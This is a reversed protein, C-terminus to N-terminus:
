ENNKQDDFGNNPSFFTRVVDPGVNFLADLSSLHSVFQKGCQPYTPHSWDQYIVRIGQEAFLNLEGDMYRKAGVSSYYCNGQTNQCLNVLLETRRGTCNLESARIFHPSLGLLDSILKVGAITLDVLNEWPLHLWDRFMPFYSPFYPSRGLSYYISRLHDGRWDSHDNAISVDILRTKQKHSKIPVSLYFPHDDSGKIRNRNQWERRAYQVTDLFIFVDARAVREFYGLWPLYAPQNIVV